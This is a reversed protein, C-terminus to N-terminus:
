TSPTPKYDSLLKQARSRVQVANSAQASELLRKITPDSPPEEALQLERVLHVFRESPKDEVLKNLITEDDKLVVGLYYQWSSRALKRLEPNVVDVAAYSHGYINGLYVCLYARLCEGVAPKPIITGLAALQQVPRVEAAFNGFSFHADIVTQAAKRFAASRLSEPVYDFGKVRTLARKLDLLVSTKGASAAEAYTEGLAWRDAEPLRTWMKPLLETLNALAHERRPGRDGKIASLLVRLTTSLFFPPQSVLQEIEADDSTVNGSLLRDRVSAFDLAVAINQEGLVYQVCSRIIKLAELADLQEESQPDAFHSLLEFDHRLRMAGTANVVGLSESLSITDYDTLISDPASDETIDSRGLMEGIFQMGLGAITGRLRSMARRWTYEAGMEYFGANIAQVIKEQDQSKLGVAYPLLQDAEKISTPISAGGSGQWLVVARKSSM